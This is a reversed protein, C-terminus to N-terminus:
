KKSKRNNQLVNGPRGLSCPPSLAHGVFIMTAIVAGKPRGGLTNGLRGVSGLEQRTGGGM